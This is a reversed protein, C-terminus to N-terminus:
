RAFGTFVSCNSAVKRRQSCRQFPHIDSHGGLVLDVDEQYVILWRLQEGILHDQLRQTVIEDLRHRSFFRQLLKELILNRDDEDIDAHRLEIAKLKCRQDSLVRPELLDRDNEDGRYMKRFNVMQAAILHARDIVQRHRDHRFQEPGLDPYEGIEIALAPLELPEVCFQLVPDGLARGFQLRDVDRNIALSCRRLRASAAPLM